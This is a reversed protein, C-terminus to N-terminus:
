AAGAAIVDGALLASPSIGLEAAIAAIEEASFSVKGSMRRAFTAQPSGLRRAMESASIHARALELRVKSAIAPRDVTGSLPNNERM